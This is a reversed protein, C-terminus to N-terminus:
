GGGAVGWRRVMDPSECLRARLKERVFYLMRGVTGPAVELAEAIESHTWRHRYFLFFVSQQRSDLDAVASLVAAGLDREPEPGSALVHSAADLEVFVPRSARARLRDYCLNLTTKYLWAKEGTGPKMSRFCRYFVDAVVEEADHFNGLKRWACRMLPGRYKAVISELQEETM